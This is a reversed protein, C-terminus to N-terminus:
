QRQDTGPATVATGESQADGYTTAEYQGGDPGRVRASHTHILKAM